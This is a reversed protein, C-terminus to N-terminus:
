TRAPMRVSTQCADRFYAITRKRDRQSADVPIMPIYSLQSLAQKALLFDHTRTGDEGSQDILETPLAGSRCPPLRQNSDLM